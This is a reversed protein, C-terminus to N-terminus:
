PVPANSDSNRRNLGRANLVMLSGPTIHEKYAYSREPVNIQQGCAEIFEVLQSVSRHVSGLTPTRIPM